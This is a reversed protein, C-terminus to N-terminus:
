DTARSAPWGNDSFQATAVLAVIVTLFLASTLMAGLGVGGCTKAQTL